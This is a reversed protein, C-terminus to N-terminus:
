MQRIRDKELLRCTKTPEVVYSVFGTKTNNSSTPVRASVVEDVDFQLTILKKAEVSKSRIL